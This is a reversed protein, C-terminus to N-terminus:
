PTCLVDMHCGALERPMPALDGAQRVRYGLGELFAVLTAPASGNERLNQEDLEIFLVPKFRRLTAEAGRLVEMEFGEVDIKILDLRDMGLEPWLHDLRAVQVEAFPFRDSAPELSVIRNMGSNTGLVRYLRQTGEARGLGRAEVKVNDIRNKALHGVLRARSVPDPEFAVVKGANAKRAFPITLMGINAGVDIINFGREVRELLRDFGPEAFGFYLYHDVADGLDLDWLVSNREVSRWSNKPYMYEHPVLRAIASGPRVGRTREALWRELPPWRFPLRLLNLARTKAGRHGYYAYNDRM